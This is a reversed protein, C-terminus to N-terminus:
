KGKGGKKGGGKKGTEKKPNLETADPGQGNGTNEETDVPGNNPADDPYETGKPDVKTTEHEKKYLKWKKPNKRYDDTNIYM